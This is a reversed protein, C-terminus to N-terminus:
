LSSDTLHRLWNTSRLKMLFARHGKLSVALRCGALLFWTPAPRRVCYRGELLLLGLKWRDSFVTLFHEPLFNGALKHGIRYLFHVRKEISSREWFHLHQLLHSVNPSM